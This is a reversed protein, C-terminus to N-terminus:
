LLWSHRLDGHDVLRGGTGIGIHLLHQRGERLLPVLVQGRDPADVGGGEIEDRLVLHRGRAAPPQHKEVVAVLRACEGIVIQRVVTQWDGLNKDFGQLFVM